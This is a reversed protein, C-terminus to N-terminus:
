STKYAYQIARFVDKAFQEWSFKRAQLKGKQQYISRIAKRTALKKMAWCISRPDNPDILIGANGIVEPISGVDAGIVPCRMSMAELFPFGFGETISSGVFATAHHYLSVLEEDSVFGLLVIREQVYRPLKLFEDYVKPDAWRNTGSVYLFYEKSVLKCFLSFALLLAPVNKGPKLAGVSLFYPPTQIAKKPVNVVRQPIGPYAVVIKKKDVHYLAILDNKTAESIAVLAHAKKALTRSQQQLSRSTKPYLSPYQEFALDYFIGVIKTKLMPLPPVFQSLSLFVDPEDKQLYLPLFVRSWGKMPRVLTNSVRGGFANLLEREIPCFSYLIYSNKKDFKKLYLFLHKAIQYVGLKLDNNEIGLCGADVAIRM